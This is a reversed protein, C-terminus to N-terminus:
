QRNSSGRQRSLHVGGKIRICDSTWHKKRLVYLLNVSHVVSCRTLLLVTKAYLAGVTFSMRTVATNNATTTM